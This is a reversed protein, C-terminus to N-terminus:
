SVTLVHRLTEHLVLPPFDSTVIGEGLRRLLVLRLKGDQVKKDVSMLELFKQPAISNPPQVPLGARTFLNKIRAVDQDNLWGLRRSMESALVMGASIAEGHRWTGYGTGTEIAHGFTHGFNLTARVGSETEDAAVIEAKHRCSHEIAFALAQSDRQILKEMNAELWVLFDTDRILGYKVIEAIGASLERDPLTNLTDTDVLVARPQYFAGIM